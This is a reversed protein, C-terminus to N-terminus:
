TLYLQAKALAESTLRTDPHGVGLTKIRVQLAQGLSEAAQRHLGKRLYFVGLQYGISALLVNDSDMRGRANLVCKYLREIDGDRGQRELVAGLSRLTRLSDVNMLGLRAERGKLALACHFSAEELQGLQLCVQGYEHEQTLVLLHQPNLRQNSTLRRQAISKLSHLHDLYPKSSNHRDQKEYVTILLQHAKLYDGSRIRSNREWGEIVELLLVEADTYRGAGVLAGSLAQASLITHNENRGYREARGQWARECFKIAREYSGLREYVIGLEHVTDLTQLHNPGLRAKRGDLTMQYQEKAEPYRSQLRFVYGLNNRAELTHPHDEGLQTTMNEVISKLTEEAKTWRTQQQYIGAVYFHTRSTDPHDPGLQNSSSRGRLVTLLLSLAKEDDGLRFDILGLGQLARLTDLYEPGLARKRIEYSADFHARADESRDQREYLAGFNYHINSLEHEPVDEKLSTRKVIELAFQIHKEAKFYNGQSKYVDALSLVTRLKANKDLSLREEMRLALTYHREAEEYEGRRELIQALNVRCEFAMPSIPGHAIETLDFSRKAIQEATRYDGIQRLYWSVKRGLLAEFTDIESALDILGNSIATSFQRRGLSETQLLLIAHPHHVQYTAWEDRNADPYQLCLGKLALNAADQLKGRDKLWARLTIRVLSQLDFLNTQHGEFDFTDARKAILSFAQLKGLADIVSKVDDDLALLTEPIAKTDLMSMTSLMRASLPYHRDIYDFSIELTAAVSNKINLSRTQDEFEESLLRIKTEDSQGYVSIYRNLSVSEACMYAAAQVLALPNHELLNALCSIDEHAVDQGALRSSLFDASEESRWQDIRIVNEPTDQPVLNRGVKMNRTTLVISGNSSRPFYDVLRYSSGTVKGVRNRYLMDIDDANDVILLWQGSSDSELWDKVQEMKDIDPDQLDSGPLKAIKAIGDYVKEIQSTTGAHVWFVSITDFEQVQFALELVIRSKRSTTLLM